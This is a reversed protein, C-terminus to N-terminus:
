PEPTDDFEVELGSTAADVFLTTVRYNGTPPASVIAGYLETGVGRARAAAASSEASGASNAAATEAALQAAEAATQADLAALRYGDAAQSFADANTEALQAEDRASQSQAVAGSAQSVLADVEAQMQAPSKTYVPQKTLWDTLPYTGNNFDGGGAAGTLWDRFEKDFRQRELVLEAILEALAANTYILDSPLTTNPVEPTEGGGGSSDSFDGFGRKLIAAISTGFGRRFISNAM